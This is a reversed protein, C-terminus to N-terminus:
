AIWTVFEQKVVWNGSPEREMLIWKGVASDTMLRELSFLAQTGSSNVGICSFQVYGNSHPHRAYFTKFNKTDDPRAIEYEVPLNFSHSVVMQRGACREFSEITDFTVGKLNRVISNRQEGDLPKLFATTLSAIVSGKVGVRIDDIGNTGELQSRLFDSLVASDRASLPTTQALTSVCSIATLFLAIISQILRRRM